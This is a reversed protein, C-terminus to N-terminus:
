EMDRLKSKQIYSATISIILWLNITHIFHCLMYSARYWIHTDWRRGRPGGHLNGISLEWVCWLSCINEAQLHERATSTQKARKAMSTQKARECFLGSTSPFGHRWSVGEMLSLFGCTLVGAKQLWHFLESKREAGDRFLDWCPVAKLPAQSMVMGKM